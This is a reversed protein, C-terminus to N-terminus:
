KQLKWAAPFCSKQIRCMNKERVVHNKSTFGFNRSTKGNHTSSNWGQSRWGMKGSKQAGQCLWGLIESIFSLCKPDPIEKKRCAELWSEIHNWSAKDDIKMSVNFSPYQGKNTIDQEDHTLEKITQKIHSKYAVATNGKPLLEQGDEQVRYSQFFCQIDHELGKFDKQRIVEELTPRKRITTQFNNYVDVNNKRRQKTTKSLGGNEEYEQIKSENVQIFSPGRRSKKAKVTSEKGGGSPCPNAMFYADIDDNDAHKQLAKEQNKISSSSTGASPEEMKDDKLSGAIFYLVYM